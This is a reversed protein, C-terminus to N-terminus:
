QNEKRSKPDNICLQGVIHHDVNPDANKFSLQNTIKTHHLPNRLWNRTSTQKNM